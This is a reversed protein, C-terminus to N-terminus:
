NLIQAIVQEDSLTNLPRKIDEQTQVGYIRLVNRVKKYYLTEQLNLMRLIIRVRFVSSRM